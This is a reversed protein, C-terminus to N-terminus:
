PTSVKNVYRECRVCATACWLDTAEEHKHATAASDESSYHPISPNECESQRHTCSYASVYCGSVREPREADVSVPLLPLLSM